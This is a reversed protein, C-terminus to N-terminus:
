LGDCVLPDLISTFYRSFSLIHQYQIRYLKIVKTTVMARCIVTNVCDLRVLSNDCTIM